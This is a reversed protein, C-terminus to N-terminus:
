QPDGSSNNWVITIPNVQTDGTHSIPDTPAPCGGGDWGTNYYSLYVGSTGDTEFRGAGQSAIWYTTSDILEYPSGADCNIWGPSDDARTGTCCLLANGSSDYLRIAFTNGDSDEVYLHGHRVNGPTTPTTPSYYVYQTTKLLSAGTTGTFGISGSSPASEVSGSGIIYPNTGDAFVPTTWVLYIAVVTFVTVIFTLLIKSTLSKM